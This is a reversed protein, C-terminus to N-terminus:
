RYEVEVAKLYPHRPTSCRAPTGLPTAWSGLVVSARGAVGRPWLRTTFSSCRQNATFQPSASFTLSPSARGVSSSWSM